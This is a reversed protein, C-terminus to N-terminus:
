KGYMCWYPLVAAFAASENKIHGWEENFVRWGRRVTGDINPEPPYEAKELWDRIQPWYFTLPATCIFPNMKPAPGRWYFVLGFTGERKGSPIFETIRWGVTKSNYRSAIKLATQLHEPDDLDGTVDFRYNDM